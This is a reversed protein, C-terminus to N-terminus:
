LRPITYSPSHGSLNSAPAGAAPRALPLFPNQPTSSGCWPMLAPLRHSHDRGSSGAQGAQQRSAGSSGRRGRRVPVPSAVIADLKKRLQFELLRDFDDMLLLFAEWLHVVWARRRNITRHHSSTILGAGGSPPVLRRAPPGTHGAPQGDVVQFSQQSHGVTSRANNLDHALKVMELRRRGPATMCIALVVVPRLSVLDNTTM